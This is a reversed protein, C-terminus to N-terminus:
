RPRKARRILRSCEAKAKADVRPANREPPASLDNVLRDIMAEAEEYTVKRRSQTVPAAETAAATTTTTGVADMLVGSLDLMRTTLGRIRYALRSTEDSEFESGSVQELTMGILEHLEYSAEIPAPTTPNETAM